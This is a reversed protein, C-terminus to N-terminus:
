KNSLSNMGMKAMANEIEILIKNGEETIQLAKNEDYEMSVIPVPPFGYFSNLEMKACAKTLENQTKSNKM